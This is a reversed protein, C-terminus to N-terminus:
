FLSPYYGILVRDNTGDNILIRKNEGDILVSYSSVSAGSSMKLKGNLITILGPQDSGGVTMAFIDTTPVTPTAPM